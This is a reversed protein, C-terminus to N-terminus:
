FWFVALSAESIAVQKRNGSEQKKEQKKNGNLVSGMEEV